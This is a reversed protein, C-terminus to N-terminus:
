RREELLIALTPCNRVASRAAPLQAAPVSRLYRLGGTETLRFLEPAEAVCFGYRRCRGNDVSLRQRRQKM